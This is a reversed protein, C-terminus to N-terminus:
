LCEPQLMSVRMVLHFCSPHPKTHQLAHQGGWWAVFLVIGRVICIEINWTLRTELMFGRILWKGLMRAEILACNTRPQMCSHVLRQAPSHTHQYPQSYKRASDPMLSMTELMTASGALRMCLSCQWKCWWIGGIHHGLISGAQWYRAHGDGQPLANLATSIQRVRLWMM